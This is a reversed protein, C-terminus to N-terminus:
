PVVLEELARALADYERPLKDCNIVIIEIGPRKYLEAKKKARCKRYGFELEYHVNTTCDLLDGFGHPLQFETVVDHNMWRLVHFLCAKVMFHKRSEKCYMRLMNLESTHFM